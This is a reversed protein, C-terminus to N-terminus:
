VLSTTKNYDQKTVNGYIDVSAYKWSETSLGDDLILIIGKLIMNLQNYLHVFSMSNTVFNAAEKVDSMFSKLIPKSIEFEKNKNM